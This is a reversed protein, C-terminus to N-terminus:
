KSDGELQRNLFAEFASGDRRTLNPVFRSYVTFLMNTNSHGLQKAIWEPAEGAALWLTAATHRTQYPNRREIELFDLLPYWIRRTVNRHLLPNGNANSFVFKSKGSMLQKHSVLADYVMQCMDVSRHSTQTKAPGLEGNVLSQTILIQRRKFDINRWTLGDIEGTRLGAFFRVTYYAKFAERVNNIINMAEDLTFPNVDSKPIPLPKINRWPTEYGHRDAAENILMRLPSMIHNIRSASLSKGKVNKAVLEGRFAMLDTKKITNIPRKGFAPILYIRFIDEVTKQQSLRWEANKEKLWIESFEAFHLVEGSSLALEMLEMARFKEAKKSKPFHNEYRFTKLHMEAEIRKLFVEARKRNAKTDDLNTQERCRIGRYRFDLYLKKGRGNVTGM